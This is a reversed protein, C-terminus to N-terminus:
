FFVAGGLQRPSKKKKDAMVRGSTRRDTQSHRDTYSYASYERELVRSSPMRRVLARGRFLTVSTDFWVVSPSTPEATSATGGHSGGVAPYSRTGNRADGSFFFFSFFDGDRKVVVTSSSYQVIMGHRPYKPEVDGGLSVGYVYLSVCFVYFVCASKM